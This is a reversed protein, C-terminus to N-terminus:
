KHIMSYGRLFKYGDLKIMLCGDETQSVMNKSDLVEVRQRIHEETSGIKTAIKSVNQEGCEDLYKLIRYDDIHMWEVKHYQVAPDSYWNRVKEKLYYVSTKWLINISTIILTYLRFIVLSCVLFFIFYSLVIWFSEVSIDSEIEFELIGFFFFLGSSITLLFCGILYNSLLNFDKNRRNARDLPQYREPLKMLSSEVVFTPKTQFFLAAVSSLAAIWTFVGIIIFDTEILSSYDLERYKVMISAVSIATAIILFNVKIIGTARESIFKLYEFEEERTPKRRESDEIM